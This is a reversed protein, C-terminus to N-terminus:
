SATCHICRSRMARAPECARGTRGGAAAIGCEQAVAIMAPAASPDVVAELRHGMNYVTYMEQWSLGAQRQIAAFLPPIAFVHDKIYRNGRAAGVAGFKM